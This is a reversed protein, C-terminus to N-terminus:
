HGWCKTKLVMPDYLVIEKDFVKYLKFEDTSYKSYLHILDGIDTTKYYNPIDEKKLNGIGLNVKLLESIMFDKQVEIVLAEVAERSIPKLKSNDSIVVQSKNIDTPMCDGKLEDLTNLCVYSYEYKKVISYIDVLENDDYEAIFDGVKLNYEKPKINLRTKFHEIIKTVDEFSYYWGGVSSTFLNDKNLNFYVCFDDNTYILGLNNLKDIARGVTTTHAYPSYPNHKTINFKIYTVEGLDNTEAILSKAPEDKCITELAEIITSIPLTKITKTM